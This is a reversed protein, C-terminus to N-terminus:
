WAGLQETVVAVREQEPGGPARGVPARGGPANHTM